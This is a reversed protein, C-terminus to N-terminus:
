AVWRRPGPAPPSRRTSSTSTSPSTSRDDGARRRLRDAVEAVGLRDVDDARIIEFGFRADDDLDQASYLPAASASM